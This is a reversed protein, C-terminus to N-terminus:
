EPNNSINEVENILDKLEAIASQKKIEADKIMM